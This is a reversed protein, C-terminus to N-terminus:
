AVLCTVRKMHCLKCVCPIVHLKHVWKADTFNYIQKKLFSFPIYFKLILIGNDDFVKLYLFTTESQNVPQNISHNISHNTPQNISQNISQNCWAFLYQLIMSLQLLSMQSLIINLFFYDCFICLLSDKCMTFRWDSKFRGRDNVVLM